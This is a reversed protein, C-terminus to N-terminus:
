NAPLKLFKTQYRSVGNNLLLIYVGDKIGDLSVALKKGSLNLSMEKIVRGDPKLISAHYTGPNAKISIILTNNAPNPYVKMSSLKSDKIGLVEEGTTESVIDTYSSPGIDTYSYMRYYYTTEDELNDDRYLVEEPELLAIEDFDTGNLSKELVYGVCDYSRNWTLILRSKPFEESKRVSFSEPTASPLTRIYSTYSEKSPLYATDLGDVLFANINILTNNGLNEMISLDASLEERSSTKAEDPVTGTSEWSVGNYKLFDGDKLLYDYGTNTGNSLTPGGTSKDADTDMYIAYSDVGEIPFIFNAKSVGWHSRIFYAKDNKLQTSIPPIAFWDEDNGDIIIDFYRDRGGNTSANVESAYQSVQEGDVLYYRYTYDVGSVVDYDMYYDTEGGITVLLMYDGGDQSREIKRVPGDGTKGWYLLIRDVDSGSYLNGNVPLFLRYILFELNQDPLYNVDVTNNPDNVFAFNIEPDNVVLALPIGLEIVTLNKSSKSDSNLTWGWANSTGSYDYVIGNEILLEAGNGTWQWAHYGTAASQDLDLFLQYSDQLNQGTILVYLSDSNNYIKISEAQLNDNSVFSPVIGAWDSADGDIIIDSPQSTSSVREKFFESGSYATGSNSESINLDVGLDNYGLESNWVGTNALRISYAPNGYLSPEPDPLNLFVSYDGPEIDDPIGLTLNITNTNDLSWLRPDESTEIYYEKNTQNHILVFEFKRENYVNSWGDNVINVDITFEDGPRVASTVTADTLRYRYGLSLQVEEFCADEKWVNLVTQNYDNNLFSWHFRQLESVANPCYSYPDALNCTEGGMVLFNTEQELYAKEVTQNLYTGYDDASAVFCDNHHAIRAKPTGNYADAEILPNEDEVLSMKIRPTRVQIMRNEPVADLFANVLARRNEWDEANPSGVINSFYDTYYWEGWAGIFGAQFLAIVDSNTRLVPKLQSIHQLVIELPADGYPATSKSTYAFRVIVKVGAKRAELFDKQMNELYTNSIARDTFAELYFVRLILSIGEERYATLTTADLLTYNNAHTETHHYFGREPNTINSLDPNYNITTQAVGFQGYTILLVFVVLGKEAFNFM